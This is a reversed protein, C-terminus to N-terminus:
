GNKRRETNDQYYEALKKRGRQLRTQITSKPINLLGAIEEICYGESYYLIMLVRYKEQLTSLAEKLELNCKDEMVPEDYEELVTLKKNKRQIDNCKNILIRTIWTHFYRTQKLTHIKEWCALITDQVADAVDEDNMLIALGVKYMDKLMSQMLETFAEPDRKKAKRILYETEKDRM